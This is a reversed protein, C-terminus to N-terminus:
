VRAEVWEVIRPGAYRAVVASVALPVAVYVVSEAVAPASLALAIGVLIAAVVLAGPGTFLLLVILSALPLLLILAAWPGYAAYIAGLVYLAMLGVCAVVLIPIFGAPVYAKVEVGELLELPVEPGRGVLPQERLMWGLALGLAISAALWGVQYL